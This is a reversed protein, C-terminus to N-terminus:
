LDPTPTSTWHFLWKGFFCFCWRAVSDTQLTLTIQKQIRGSQPRCNGRQPFCENENQRHAFSM